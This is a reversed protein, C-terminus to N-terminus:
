GAPHRFEVVARGDAAPRAGASTWGLREYFGVAPSDADTVLQVEVAGAAGCALVFAEVLAAGLGLGRAGDDVAVHVLVAPSAPAATSTDATTSTPTATSATSADAGTPTTRPRLRRAIGRVYRGARTTLFTWLEPPRLLLATGGALALRLGRNRVTWAGHEHVRTSGVVFGVTTGDAEAVLAVAHPGDLYSRHYARLFREGLRPFFGVPLHTRHLAAVARLDRRTMTRVSVPAAEPAADPPPTGPTM